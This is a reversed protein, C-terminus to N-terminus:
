ADAQRRKGILGSLAGVTLLLTGALTVYFGTDAFTAYNESVIWVGPAHEVKVTGLVTDTGPNLLRYFPYLSVIGAFAIGIWFARHRLTVFYARCALAVLVLIAVAPLLYKWWGYCAEAGTVDGYFASLALWRFQTFGLLVVAAGITVLAIVVRSPILPALQQGSPLTGVPEQPTTM